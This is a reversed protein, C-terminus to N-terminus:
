NVTYPLTLVLRGHQEVRGLGKATLKKTSVHGTLKKRGIGDKESTNQLASKVHVEVKYSGAPWAENYRYL